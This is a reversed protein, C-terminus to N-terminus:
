LSVTVIQQTKDPNFVVAAVRDGDPFWDQVSAYSGDGPSWLTRPQEADGGLPLLRLESTEGVPSPRAWSYVVQTGDPSIRSALAYSMVNSTVATATHTVRRNEGTELNRIALNGEDVWDVYTVFKGDPSM